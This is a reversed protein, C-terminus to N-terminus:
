AGLQAKVDMVCTVIADLRAESLQAVVADGDRSTAMLDARCTQRRSRPQARGEARAATIAAQSRGGKSTTERLYTKVM